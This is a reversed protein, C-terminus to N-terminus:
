GYFFGAISPVGPLGCLPGDRAGRPPLPTRDSFCSAACSRKGSLCRDMQVHGMQDTVHCDILQCGGM